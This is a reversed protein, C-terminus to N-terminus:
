KKAFWEERLQLKLRDLLGPFVWNQGCSLCEFGGRSKTDGKEKEEKVSIKRRRSSVCQM